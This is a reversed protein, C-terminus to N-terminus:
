LKVRTTVTDTGLGTGSGNMVDNYSRPEERTLVAIREDAGEEIAAVKWVFNERYQKHGRASLYGRKFLVEATDRPHLTSAVGKTGPDPEGKFFAAWGALFEAPVNEAFPCPEDGEIQIQVFSGVAPLNSNTDSM